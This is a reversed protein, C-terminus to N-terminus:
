RHARSDRPDVGVKREDPRPGRRGEQPALHLGAPAPEEHLHLDPGGALVPNLHVPGGDSALPVKAAV